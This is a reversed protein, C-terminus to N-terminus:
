WIWDAVFVNTEGEKAANRNSAFVIKKGDPSFMPFGDFTDNFTVQELGTGDINVLFLDFNRGRPDKMNSAFVIKKGDPAFYPAWNARGFRTVQTLNRGDRDMVFVELSTPRWLAQKLLSAYDDLEKGPAPHQGRFVIKSGDPSFFPGGDPGPLNTLRRVDSGDGNMSYIEMDGDRVSTFVIRGDRAITAEADYGPTDTLRVLNTGDPNARFIDFTDYVAWVYGQAMSPPPPCADGGLHTSAYLISKGDPYFFSCTTRGKGTSVLKQETGDIRMTYIQDCGDDTKTSQFTLWQGDFSFYAEANQGSFTLQKINQLHREGAILAPGAPTQQRAAAALPAPYNPPSTLLAVPVAVLLVNAIRHRFMGRDYDVNCFIRDGTDV